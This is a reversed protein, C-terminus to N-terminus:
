AKSKKKKRRKKRKSSSAESPAPRKAPLRLELAVLQVKDAVARADCRAVATNVSFRAADFTHPVKLLLRRCGLGAVTEVFGDLTGKGKLHVSQESDVDQCDEYHRGGWPPDAFVLTSSWDVDLTPLKELCDGQVVDVRGLREFRRVHTINHALMRSREMNLEISVVRPFRRAFAISNGGVCATADVICAVGDLEAAKAFKAACIENSAGYAGEEDIQLLHREPV